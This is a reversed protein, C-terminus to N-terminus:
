LEDVAASLADQRCGHAPQQPSYVKNVVGIGAPGEANPSLLAFPAQSAHRDDAMWWWWSMSLDRMPSPTAHRWGFRELTSRFSARRCGASGLAVRSLLGM